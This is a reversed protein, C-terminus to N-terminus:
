RRKAREAPGWLLELKEGKSGAFDSLPANREPPQAFVNSNKLRPGRSARYPHMGSRRNHLFARTKSGQVGRLEIPTPRVRLLQCWEYWYYGTTVLLLWYYGTTVLLLWYYGTTVLLLWYYGTTVLLLWDRTGFHCFFFGAAALLSRLQTKRGPGRQPKCAACGAGGSAAEPSATKACM